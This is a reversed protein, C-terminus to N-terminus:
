WLTVCKHMVLCVFLCVTLCISRTQLTGVYMYISFFNFNNCNEGLEEYNRTKGWIAKLKLISLFHSRALLFFFSCFNNWKEERKSIANNCYCYLLILYVGLLSFVCLRLLYVKKQWVVINKEDDITKLWRCCGYRCECLFFFDIIWLNDALKKMCFLSM